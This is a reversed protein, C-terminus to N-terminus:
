YCPGELNALVFNWIHGFLLCYPMNDFCAFTGTAGASGKKVGSGAVPKPRLLHFFVHSCFMWPPRSPGLCCEELGPAFQGKAMTEDLYM